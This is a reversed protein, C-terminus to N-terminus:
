RAWPTRFVHDDEGAVVDVLHVVFQHQLLMDIGAGVDGDAAQFHRAHFRDAEADHMDVFLVLDDGEDFLGGIRRANGAIRFM